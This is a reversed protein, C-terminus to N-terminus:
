VMVTPMLIDSVVFERDNFLTNCNCLFALLMIFVFKVVENNSKLIHQIIVISLLYSKFYPTIYTRDFPIGFIAVTEPKRELCSSIYPLGACSLTLDPCPVM